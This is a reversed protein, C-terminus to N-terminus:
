IISGIYERCPYDAGVTKPRQNSIVYVCVCVCVCVCMYIYIYIYIYLNSKANFLSRPNIHWSSLAVFGGVLM